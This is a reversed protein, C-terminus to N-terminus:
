QTECLRPLLSIALNQELIWSGTLRLQSLTRRHETKWLTSLLSLSLFCVSLSLSLLSVSFSLSLRSLCLCLSTRLLANKITNDTKKAFKLTIFSRKRYIFHATSTKPFNKWFKRFLEKRFFRLFVYKLQRM